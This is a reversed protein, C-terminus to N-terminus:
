KRGWKEPKLVELVRLLMADSYKPQLLIEGNIRVPQGRHLVPTLGGELARRM